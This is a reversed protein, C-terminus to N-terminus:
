RQRGSGKKIRWLKEKGVMEAYGSDVYRKTEGTEKYRRSAGRSDTPAIGRSIRAICTWCIENEAEDYGELFTIRNANQKSNGQENDQGQFKYEADKQLVVDGARRSETADEQEM